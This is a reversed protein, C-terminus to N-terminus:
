LGEALFAQMKATKRRSEKVKHKHMDTESFELPKDGVFGEGPRRHSYRGVRACDPNM